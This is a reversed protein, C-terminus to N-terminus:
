FKMGGQSLRFIMSEFTGKPSSIPCADGLLTFKPPTGLTAMNDSLDYVVKM